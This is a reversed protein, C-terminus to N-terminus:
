LMVVVIEALRRSLSRYGLRGPGATTHRLVQFVYKLAVRGVLLADAEAGDFEVDVKSASESSDTPAIAATQCSFVKGSMDVNILLGCSRSAVRATSPPAMEKSRDIQRGCDCGAGRSVNSMVVEMEADVQM